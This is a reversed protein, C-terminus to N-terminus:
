RRSHTPRDSAQMHALAACGVLCPARGVNRVRLRLMWEGREFGHGLGVLRLRAAEGGGLGSGEAGAAAPAPPAPAATPPPPARPKPHAGGGHLLPAIGEAARWRDLMEAAEAASAAASATVDPREQVQDDGGGQGGANEQACPTGLAAADAAAALRQLAYRRLLQRARLAATAGDL